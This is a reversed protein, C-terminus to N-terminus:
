DEKYCIGNCAQIYDVYEVPINLRAYNKDFWECMKRMEEPSVPDHTWYIKKSPRYGNEDNLLEIFKELSKQLKCEKM